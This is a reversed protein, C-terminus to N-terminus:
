AAKKVPPPSAAPPPAYVCVRNRGGEKAQYMAQDSLDILAQIDESHEPFAALGISVTVPGVSEMNEGTLILQGVQARLREVLQEGQAIGAHPMIAVFEEGGYRYVRDQPRLSARIAQAVRQLTVDGVHHGYEDNLRKFHDVDLMAVVMPTRERVLAAIETRLDDVLQRRNPLTTLPDHHAADDSAAYINAAAVATAVQTAMLELVFRDDESFSAPEEAWCALAGVVKAGVILPVVLTSEMNPIRESDSVREQASEDVVITKGRKAASGLVGEGLAVRSLKSLDCDESADFGAVALEGAEVLWLVVADASLLKRTEVVTTTVVYTLSLSEAIETVIQYLAALQSNRREVASNAEQLGLRERETTLLALRLRGNTMFGTAGVVFMVVLVVAVNSYLAVNQIHEVDDQMGLARQRFAKAQTSSTANLLTIRALLPDLTAQTPSDFYAKLAASTAALVDATLKTAASPLRRKLDEGNQEAGNMAENAAVARSIASPGGDASAAGPGAGQSLLAELGVHGLDDAAWDINAAADGAKLNDKARQLRDAVYLNTTLTIAIIVAAGFVVTGLQIVFPRVLFRRQPAFPM